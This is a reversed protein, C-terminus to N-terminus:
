FARQVIDSNISVLEPRSKLLTLVDQWDFLDNEYHDYITRALEYDELTDVTWRHTSFDAGARVLLTTFLDPRRYIYPTVHERTAPDRDERWARTLADRRFVETDLGRPFTRVPVTNSCYDLGPHMALFAEIVQDIVEPDILPCDSTVRVIVDAAVAAATQEFRDLVDDRSGRSYPWSQQGCLEVIPDDADDTTTAVIIADLRQSRMLREIVRQLMPRGALDLMVKGPLRSSTMRAQVIGCIKTM